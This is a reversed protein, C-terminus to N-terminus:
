YKWGTRGRRLIEQEERELGKEETSGLRQAGQVARKRHMSLILNKTEETLGPTRELKPLLHYLLVNELNCHEPAGEIELEQWRDVFPEIDVYETGLLCEIMHYPLHIKKEEIRKGRLVEKIHENETEVNLKAKLTADESLADKIDYYEM